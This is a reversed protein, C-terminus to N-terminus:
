GNGLMALMDDVLDTFRDKMQFGIRSSIIEERMDILKGRLKLALGIGAINLGEDDVLRKIMKLRAIDDDSYMRTNYNRAPELFGVREYKRLTQPHMGTMTAAVQM